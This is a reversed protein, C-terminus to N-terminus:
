RGIGEKSLFNESLLSFRYGKSELALLMADLKNFFKDSRDPHTGIHLLLIFGNLGHESNVEYDMISDYIMDSSLYSEGLDPTTYDATSRTGQSYNILTLGLEGTWKSISENYWEYPPLFLSADEPTIGFRAMEGYNNRLDEIFEDRSVLLSDRNEWTAYLLHKGSHAGLYHGDRKLGKIIRKYARDRYFDGTFFFHAKIKHKKLTKRILKGGEAYKHGTFVLYIVKEDLDGRVIAGQYTQGVSESGSVNKPALSSFYYSLSATGDMTPENTSYDGYDDHYVSLASQFQSYEDGNVIKLGRLSEFISTYVPGDILGGPLELGFVATQAAHPDVPTDGYEPFGIIMSTGWPNVGLLWDRMAAELEAYQRDGTLDEYLRIQTLIAAILNNSCWIYPVGMLFGNEQARAQVADIGSKLYAVFEDRTQGQSLQAIKVHGLNVFPYWQYHRAANELMWPTVMEQRGWTAADELYKVDRTLVSLQVAALELDDVYNDEEYFYPSRNSATQNVGLDSLAYNYAMQAKQGIHSSFDADFPKLLVSGLAFASAYKGATSSVGTSRNKYKGLGQPKGTVPYVPRERGKGYDVSDLTPLTFKTHDRDDAIQNFMLDPEPYMKDLWELGWRAEDLIDPIGNAGRDGNAQYADGFAHPNQEYAFLMQYTANASTTAYQLYDSADHWGGTVDLYTSDHEPHDVIFGDRTHCSDQLFPNYGCRQQRMYNLLFDAAGAYLEAGIQFQSSQSESLKIYFLGPDSLGSFDLRHVHNFSAYAGRDHSVKGTYAVLGTLVNVVEFAQDTLPASSGVVAVKISAPTYGLQNVRIWVDAGQLSIALALLWITQVPRTM